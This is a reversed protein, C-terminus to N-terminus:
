RTGKRENPSGSGALGLRHPHLRESRQLHESAVGGFVIKGGAALGSCVGVLNQEAIGVEIIQDPLEKGFPVIKGSGRSDSTVVILNSNKKGEELLTEGFIELNAKGTTIESM